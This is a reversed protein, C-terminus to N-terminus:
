ADKRNEVSLIRYLGAKEVSSCFEGIALWAYTYRGLTDDVLKKSMGWKWERLFRCPTYFRSLRSRSLARLAPQPRQEWALRKVRVADASVSSGLV